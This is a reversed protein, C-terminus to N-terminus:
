NSTPYTVTHEASLIRGKAHSLTNERTNYSQVDKQLSKITEVLNMNEEKGEGHGNSNTGENGLNVYM